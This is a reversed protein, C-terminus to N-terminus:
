VGDKEMKAAVEAVADTLYAYDKDTEWYTVGHVEITIEWGDGCCKCAVDFFSAWKDLLEMAEQATM